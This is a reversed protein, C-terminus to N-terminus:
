KVVVKQQGKKLSRKREKEELKRQQEPSLSDIKEKKKAARKEEEAARKEEEEEVSAEKNLLVDLEQRTKVLKRVIEERLTFKHDLFDIFEFLARILPETTNTASEPPLNLSLQVHREKRHAPIAGEAPRRDPQDTIVLARFYPNVAPDSLLSVLKAGQTSKLIAETIEVSESMLCATPPIANNESLKTCYMLGFNDKKYSKMQYKSIIGWVFGHAPGTASLKFDLLVTDQPAYELDILSWGFEYVMRVIDHRPYLSFVTQLYAVARRGTSFLMYDTPGDGLLSSTDGPKAFQTNYLAQWAAAKRSNLTWGAMSIVFYVLAVVLLAAELKFEAPRFTFRGYRFELGDYHEKPLDTMKPAVLGGVAAFFNPIAEM